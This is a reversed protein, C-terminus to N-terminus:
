DEKNEICWTIWELHKEKTDLLENNDIRRYMMREQDYIIFRHAKMHDKVSIDIVDLWHEKNYSWHHLHGKTSKIRRYSYNKAKYKEPYKKRYIITNDRQEDDNKKHKEKYNLRHYKQRHRKQESEVWQPDKLLEDTREKIDKKTCEKCKNLHGDGMQKHKYYDSLPKDTNCKFCIKTVM